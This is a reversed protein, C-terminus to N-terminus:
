NGDDAHGAAESSADVAKLFIPREQAIAHVGDSFYWPRAPVDIEIVIRVLLLCSFGDGFVSAKQVPNVLKIGPKEANCRTFSGTHIWLLSDQELFGPFSNLISSDVRFRQCSALCAGKNADKSM